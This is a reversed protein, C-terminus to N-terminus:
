SMEFIKGFHDFIIFNEVKEVKLMSAILTLDDNSKLYLSLYM